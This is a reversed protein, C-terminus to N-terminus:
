RVERMFIVGPDGRYIRFAALGVPDSDGSGQWDFELWPPADASVRLVGTAAGSPAKLNLNFDSGVPSARYQDAVDVLTYGGQM